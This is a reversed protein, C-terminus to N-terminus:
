RGNYTINETPAYMIRSKVETLITYMCVCEEIIVHGFM